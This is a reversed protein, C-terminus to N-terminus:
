WNNNTPRGNYTASGWWNPMFPDTVAPYAYGGISNAYTFAGWLTYNPNGSNIYSWFAQEFRLMSSDYVHGVYGLYFEPQPSLHTKEIQFAGPMTSNDSGLYCTSMIVLNFVGGGTAAKIASSRVIDASNNCRTTGPDQLFGSDVRPYGSAAWYNDGHSHVYVAYDPYVTSLFASGTFSAGISSDAITYGLKSMQSVALSYLQQPYTDAFGVCATRFGDSNSRVQARQALSGPATSALTSAAILASVLLLRARKM